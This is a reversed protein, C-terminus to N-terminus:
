KEYLSIIIIHFNYTRKNYIAVFVHFTGKVVVFHDDKNLNGRVDFCLLLEPFKDFSSYNSRRAFCSPTLTMARGLIMSKFCICFEHEANLYDDVFPCFNLQGLNLLFTGSTLMAVVHFGGVDVAYGGVVPGVIFGINSIANFRGFIRTRRSHSVVDALYAKAL